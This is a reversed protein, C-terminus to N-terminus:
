WDESSSEFEIFRNGFQICSPAIKTAQYTGGDYTTNFAQPPAFRLNGIPPQAYPISLFATASSRDCQVGQITGASLSATTAVASQVVNSKLSLLCLYFFSLYMVGILRIKIVSAVAIYM